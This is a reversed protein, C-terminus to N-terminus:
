AQRIATSSPSLRWTAFGGALSVSKWFNSRRLRSRVYRTKNTWSRLRLMCVPLCQISGSSSSTLFALVQCSRPPLTIRGSSTIMAANTVSRRIATHQQCWNWSQCSSMMLLSLCCIYEVRGLTGYSVSTGIDVVIDNKWVTIRSQSFPVFIPSDFQFSTLWPSDVIDKSVLEPKWGSRFLKM